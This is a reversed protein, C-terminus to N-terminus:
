SPIRPQGAMDGIQPGRHLHQLRPARQARTFAFGDGVVLGTAAEPAASPIAAHALPEALGAPERHQALSEGIGLESQRRPTRRDGHAPFAQPASTIM